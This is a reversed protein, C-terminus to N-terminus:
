SAGGLLQRPEVDRMPILGPRGLGLVVPRDEWGAWVTLDIGHALLRSYACARLDIGSNKCRMSHLIYVTEEAAVARGLHRLPHRVAGVIGEIEAPDVLDTM